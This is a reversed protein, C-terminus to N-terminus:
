VWLEKAAIDGFYEAAPRLPQIWLEEAALAVRGDERQDTGTGIIGLDEALLHPTNTISSTPFVISQHSKGFSYM